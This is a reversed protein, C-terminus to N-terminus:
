PAHQARLLEDVRGKLTQVMAHKAGHTITLIRWAETLHQQAGEVQLQSELDGLTYLHLGTLPHNPDYLHQYFAYMKRATQIADHGNGMEIYLTLLQAHVELLLVSWENALVSARVDLTRKFLDIATERNSARAAEKCWTVAQELVAMKAADNSSEVDDLRGESTCRECM